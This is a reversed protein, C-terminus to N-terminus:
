HLELLCTHCPSHIKENRHHGFLVTPLFTLLKDTIFLAMATHNLNLHRSLNIIATKIVKWLTKVLFVLDVHVVM